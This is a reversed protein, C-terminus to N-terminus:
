KAAAGLVYKRCVLTQDSGKAAILDAPRVETTPLGSSYDSVWFSIGSPAKLTLDLDGGQTDMGYLLISGTSNPRLNMSRGSVKVSILKVSPDLRVVILHADRQSRLNMRIKRLEGEQEDAKIESVPPRLDIAAAPASLVPRQLGALYNPISRRNTQGDALLRATYADPADDYSFWVATQDDSNLSYLLSDHRPHQPSQHSQIVGIGLCVGAVTLM